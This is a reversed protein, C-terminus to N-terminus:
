QRIYMVNYSGITAGIGASLNQITASQPIEETGNQKFSDIQNFCGGCDGFCKYHMQPSVINSVSITVNKAPLYLQWDDGPLLYKYEGSTINLQVITTDNSTYYAAVTDNNTFIATDELVQFDSGAEFKRLVITDLDGSSYGVFVPTIFANMCPINRCSFLLSTLIVLLLILLTRIM